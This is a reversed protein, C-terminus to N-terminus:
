IYPIYIGLVTVFTTNDINLFNMLVIMNEFKVIIDVILTSTWAQHHGIVSLQFKKSNSVVYYKFIFYLPPLVCSIASCDKTSDGSMSIM